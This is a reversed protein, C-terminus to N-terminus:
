GDFPDLSPGSSRVSSDGFDGFDDGDSEGSLSDSSGDDLGSWRTDGLAERAERAEHDRPSSSTRHPPKHQTNSYYIPHDFQFCFAPRSM